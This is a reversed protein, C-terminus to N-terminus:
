GRRSTSSLRLVSLCVSEPFPLPYNNSELVKNLGSFFDAYIRVPRRVVAISAAWNAYTVPTIFGLDELRKLEDEVVVEM